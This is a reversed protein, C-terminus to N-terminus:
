SDRGFSHLRMANARLWARERAPDKGYIQRVVAHFAPSHNM